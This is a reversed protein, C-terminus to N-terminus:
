RLERGLPTGMRALVELGALGQHLRDDRGAEARMSPM